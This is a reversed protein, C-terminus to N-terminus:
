KMKRLDLAVLEQLEQDFPSGKTQGAYHMIAKHIKARHNDAYAITAMGAQAETVAQVQIIAAVYEAIMVAPISYDGVYRCRLLSVLRDIEECVGTKDKGSIVAGRIVGIQHGVMEWLATEMVHAHEDPTM